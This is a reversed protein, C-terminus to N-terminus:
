RWVEKDLLRPNQGGAVQLAMPWNLDAFLVQKRAEWFTTGGDGEVLFKVRPQPRISPDAEARRQVMAM